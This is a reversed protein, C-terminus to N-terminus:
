PGRIDIRRGNPDSLSLTASAGRQVPLCLDSIVFGKV